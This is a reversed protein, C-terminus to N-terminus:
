SPNINQEIKIKFCDIGRYQGSYFVLAGAELTPDVAVSQGETEGKFERRDALRTRGGQFSSGGGGRCFNREQPKDVTVTSTPRLDRQRGLGVDHNSAGLDQRAAGTGFSSPRPLCLSMATNNRVETLSCTAHPPDHDEASSDFNQWTIYHLGPNIDTSTRFSSQRCYGQTQNVVHVKPHLHGSDDSLGITRQYQFEPDVINAGAKAPGSGSELSNDSLNIVRQHMDTGQPTKLNNRDDYFRYLHEASALQEELTGEYLRIVPGNGAAGRGVSEKAPYPSPRWPLQSSRPRREELPPDLNGMEMWESVPKFNRQESPYSFGIHPRVLDDDGFGAAAGVAVPSTVRHGRQRNLSSPSLVEFDINGDYLQSFTKPLAKHDYSGWYADYYTYPESTLLCRCRKRYCYIAIAIVSALAISGGALSFILIVKETWFTKSSSSPSMSTTSGSALSSLSSSSLSPDSTESLPTSSPM